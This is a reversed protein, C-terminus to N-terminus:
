REHLEERTWNRSDSLGLNFGQRMLARQREKALEYRDARDVIDELAQTLLASLSSNQEIAAIKAKRLTEKPLSLTVNQKEM